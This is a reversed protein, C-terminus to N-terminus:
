CFVRMKCKCLEGGQSKQLDNCSEMLWVVELGKVLIDRRLLMSLAVLKLVEKRRVTMGLMPRAYPMWAATAIGLM